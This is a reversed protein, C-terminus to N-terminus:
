IGFMEKRYNGYYPEVALKPSFKPFERLWNELTSGPCIVLHPGSNGREVLHSLLAIVQCTKGLGMEDALICSLKRRYMLALWNLGVVQYDKLICDEAMLEPKKLYNASGRKRATALMKIDDDGADGNLSAAGSSPSGIGSDRPDSEVDDEFSTMQLEGANKAAGFTDFGWKAMEELLPKGLEDCKAVLADIAEYGAFMDLAVEVIKDGTPAKTSKKGSKLTMPNAVKRAADLSRFPRAAVMIEANAKSTNTLEVLEEVKCTNLYKLVQGDLEPDEDTASQVGSDSDYDRASLAPSSHPKLPSPVMPIAPSSPNRRGQVLRKKQKPLPTAMTAQKQPAQTSSYRDKISHIPANLGRKMQPETKKSTQPNKIEDSTFISSDSPESGRAIVEVAKDVSGQCATLVTKAALVTVHPHVIRVRMINERLQQDLLSDLSVDEVPRAKEPRMQVPPIKVNGCTMSISDASSKSFTASAMSSSSSAFAKSKEPAKYAANAIASHFRANGNIVQRAPSAGFSRDTSKRIFLSPKINGRDVEDDSSSVGQFTPGEDDDIIIYDKSPSPKLAIGHPPKYATGAPAMSMALNNRHSVAGYQAPKPSGYQVPQKPAEVSKNQLPSSAPVQIINGQANPSHPLPHASRDIIQTPQTEHIGQAPTDPIYDKFLEDGSDIDSNYTGTNSASNSTSIYGSASVRQRKVAPSDPVLPLLSHPNSSAAM